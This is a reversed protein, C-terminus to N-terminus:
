SHAIGLKELSIMSMLGFGIMGASLPIDDEFGTGRTSSNLTVLLFSKHIDMATGIVGIMANSRRNKATNPCVDGSSIM